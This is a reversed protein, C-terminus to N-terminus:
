GLYLLRHIPSCWLPSSSDSRGRQASLKVFWDEQGIWTNNNQKGKDVLAITLFLPFSQLTKVIDNIENDTETSYVLDIRQTSNQPFCITASTASKPNLDFLIPHHRL